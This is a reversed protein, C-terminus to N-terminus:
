AAAPSNSSYLTGTSPEAGATLILVPRTKPAPSRPTPPKWILASLVLTTKTASGVAPPPTSSTKLTGM